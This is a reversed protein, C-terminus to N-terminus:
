TLAINPACLRAGRRTIRWIHRSTMWVTPAVQHRLHGLGNVPQLGWESHGIGSVKIGDVLRDPRPM